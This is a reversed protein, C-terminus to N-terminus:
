WRNIFRKMIGTIMLESSSSFDEDEEGTMVWSEDDGWSVKGFAGPRKVGFSGVRAVEFPVLVGLNDKEIALISLLFLESLGSDLVPLNDEKYDWKQQWKVNPRGKRKEIKCQM